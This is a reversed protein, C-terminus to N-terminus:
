LIFVFILIFPNIDLKTINNDNLYYFFFSKPGIINLSYLKLIFNMFFFIYYSILRNFIQNFFYFLYIIIVIIIFLIQIKGNCFLFFVLFSFTTIKFFLILYFLYNIIFFRFYYSFLL